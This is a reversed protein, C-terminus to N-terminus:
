WINNKKANRETSKTHEVNEIENTLQSATQNSSHNNPQSFSRSVSKSVQYRLWYMQYSENMRANMWENSEIQNSENRSSKIRKLKIQNVSNTCLTWREYNVMKVVIIEHSGWQRMSNFCKLKRTSVIWENRRLDNIKYKEDGNWVRSSIIQLKKKRTYGFSRM